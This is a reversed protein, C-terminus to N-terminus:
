GLYDFTRIQEYGTPWRDQDRCIKLRAIAALNERAAADLVQDSFRWVGVRYPEQKEVAIVHVEPKVGTVAAVIARYFALQHAYGFSRAQVEFWDLNDISKLDIIGRDPNTWDIRIQCPEGGYTARVVGEPQGDALLAAAEAHERVAMAMRECLAAIEDSVVPKGIASAWESFAKTDAGYCKGTKPNIPGGVAYRRAFEEAGELVRCHIARGIQYASREEDAVLGLQKKRYLLPNKRFEALAHSSLHDARHSAYVAEPERILINLLTPVLATV